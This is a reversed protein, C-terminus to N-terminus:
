LWTYLRVATGGATSRVQVLDCLQNAMWIGRGNEDLDDASERGVLPDSIRGSDRVEFVLAEPRLWSRLVGRGGGHRVSNSALEHAALVLDDVVDGTLGAQEALRRVVSRLGALDADDFAVQEARRPPASLARHFDELAGAHGHYAVTPAPLRDVVPHTRLVDAVVDDSLAAADYPCMLRWVPGGDFAVNLLAEHLRCEDIEQPRRGAWVPEGVGRVPGHNRHEDVFAKWAPIIRAPNRGIEGMDLFEVAAADPGLVDTLAAVRDPLVAVLVPEAREIAERLFPEVVEVLGDLGRYLVAEHRFREAVVSAAGRV